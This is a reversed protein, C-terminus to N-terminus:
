EIHIQIYSSWISMAYIVNKKFLLRQPFNDCLFPIKWLINESQSLFKNNNDNNNSKYCYSNQNLYCYSNRSWIIVKFYWSRKLKLFEDEEVLKIQTNIETFVFCNWCDNWRIFISFSKKTYSGHQGVNGWLINALVRQTQLEFGFIISTYQRTMFNESCTVSENFFLLLYLHYNSLNEHLSWIVPNLPISHKGTEM